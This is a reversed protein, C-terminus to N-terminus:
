GKVRRTTTPIISLNHISKGTMLVIQIFVIIGFVKKFDLFLAVTMNWDSLVNEKQFCIEFNGFFLQSSM